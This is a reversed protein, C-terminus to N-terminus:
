KFHFPSLGSRIHKCDPCVTGIFHQCVYKYLKWADNGLIDENASRMPTIPPHDGADSGTRPKHFGNALLSHVLDGWMPNNLQADLVSRFDFSSPYATSETRPYSLLCCLRHILNQNM